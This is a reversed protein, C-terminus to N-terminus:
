QLRAAVKAIGALACAEDIESGRAGGVGIAGITTAGVKLLVGGARANYGPNAAVRDALEKNTKIQEGLASTPQGFTLATVAKNTSSNVGRSHAGDAALLVKLVGASDVVSVAAKHGRASCDDLATRAAELALEFAPGRAPPPPPAPPTQAVAASAFLLAILPSPNKM